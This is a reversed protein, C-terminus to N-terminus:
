LEAAWGLMAEGGVLSVGGGDDIMRGVYLLLQLRKVFTAAM